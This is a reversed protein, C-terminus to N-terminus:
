EDGVYVAEVGAPPPIRFIRANPPPEVNVDFQEIRLTVELDRSLIEFRSKMPVLVGGVEEFDKARYIYEDEGDARIRIEAVALAPYTLEVIMVRADRRPLELRYRGTDSNWALTAQERWDRTLDTMPFGGRLVRVMDGGSLYLPLLTSLNQTTAPGYYYVNEQLNLMSFEAGDSALSALAKDFSSLTVRLAAPAQASISLDRGVVREGHVEDWYDAKAMVRVNDVRDLRDDLAGLVDAPASLADDPRAHAGSCAATTLGLVLTSLLALLPMLARWVPPVRKSTIQLNSSSSELVM